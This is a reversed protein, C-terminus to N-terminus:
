PDANFLADRHRLSNMVQEGGIIFIHIIINHFISTFIYEFCEYGSNTDVDIAM